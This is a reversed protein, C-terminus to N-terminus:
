LQCFIVCFNGDHLGYHEHSVRSRNKDVSLAPFDYFVHSMFELVDQSCFLEFHFSGEVAWPGYLSNM